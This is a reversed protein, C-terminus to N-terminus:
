EDEKESRNSNRVNTVIIKGETSLDIEYKGKIPNVLEESNKNELDVIKAGM